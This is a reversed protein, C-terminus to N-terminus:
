QARITVLSTTYYGGDQGKFRVQVNVTAVTATPAGTGGACPTVSVQKEFGVYGTVAGWNANLSCLVDYPKLRAQDIQQQALLTATTQFGGAVVGYMAYPFSAALGVLAIVLLMIAMMLEVLTVGRQDRWTM